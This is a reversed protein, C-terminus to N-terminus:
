EMYIRWCKLKSDIRNLMIKFDFCYIVSRGFFFLKNAGRSRTFSKPRFVRGCIIETYTNKKASEFFLRLDYIYDYIDDAAVTKKEEESTCSACRWSM